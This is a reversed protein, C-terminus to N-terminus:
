PLSGGRSTLPQLAHTLPELLSPELLLSLHELLLPLQSSMLGWAPRPVLVCPTQPLAMGAPHHPCICVLILGGARSGSWPVSEEEKHPVHTNIADCDWMRPPTHSQGSELVLLGM